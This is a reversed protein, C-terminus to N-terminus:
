RAQHARLVGRREVNVAVQDRDDIWGDGLLTIYSKLIISNSTNFRPGVLQVTGGAVGAAPTAAKIADIAANIEV